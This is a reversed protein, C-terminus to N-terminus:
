GHQSAMNNGYNDMKDYEVERETLIDVVDVNLISAIAFLRELTLKSKFLEIKSYANQSIKLKCALYDQTYFKAERLNRINSVVKREPTIYNKIM